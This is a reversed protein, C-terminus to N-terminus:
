VGVEAATPFPGPQHKEGREETFEVVPFDTCLVGDRLVWPYGGWPRSKGRALQPTTYVGAIGIRGQPSQNVPSYHWLSSHWCVVDGPDLEIQEVGHAAKMAEVRGRPLEGHISDEYLVHQVIETQHSGPIFQLCGNSKKAPDLAMWFNFPETEGDRWLGNDQHWPTAAGTLPPKVFVSSFKLLVDDGMYYQAMPAMAGAHVSHWVLPSTHCWRNFKRFRQARAEPTDGMPDMPDADTRVDEPEPTLLINKIVGRMEAAQDASVVGRLTFYGKEVWDRAQEKSPQWDQM